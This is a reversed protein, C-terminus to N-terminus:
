AEVGQVLRRGLLQQVLAQWTCRMCITPNVLWRIRLGGKKKLSFLFKAVWWLTRRKKRSNLCCLKCVNCVSVPKQTM